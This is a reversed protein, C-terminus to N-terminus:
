MQFNSSLKVVQQLWVLQSVHFHTIEMKLIFAQQFAPKIDLCMFCCTQTQTCLHSVQSGVQPQYFSHSKHEWRRFDHTAVPIPRRQQPLKDTSCRSWMQKQPFQDKLVHGQILTKLKGPLKNTSLPTVKCETELM